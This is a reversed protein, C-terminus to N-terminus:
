QAGGPRRYLFADTQTLAVMLERVDNGGAAYLAKLTELSCQDAPTESRGYGFRFWQKALCDRVQGSDALKSALQAPGVFSGNVDSEVIEGSADVPKGSESDRWRGVADFNEFGLGIPDMLKHCAACFQDKSHQSFRERTTLNPDLDPPRVELDAPPSPPIQCFLQERVFKGRRVPDTQNALARAALMGGRTLLGPRQEASLEVRQFADGTPGSVGYFTALPRNMFSFPATLLTALKGDGKWLVEEVYLATERHALARLAPDFGPYIRADKDAEDIAALDLWQENFIAV